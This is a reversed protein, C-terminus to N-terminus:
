QLEYKLILKRLEKRSRSLYQRVNAETLGMKAAIEKGSKVSLSLKLITRRPEDLNDIAFALAELRESGADADTDTMVDSVSEVPVGSIQPQRRLVDLCRNRVARVAYGAGCVTVNLRDRAEWLTRMVDQVVDAAGEADGLMRHAVATMAGYAPLINTQFENATMTNILNKVMSVCTHDPHSM